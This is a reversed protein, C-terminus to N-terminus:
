WAVRLCIKHAFKRPLRCTKHAFKGDFKGNKHAFNESKWEVIEMPTPIATVRAVAEGGRRAERDRGRGEVEKPHRATERVEGSNKRQAERLVHLNRCLGRAHPSCSENM